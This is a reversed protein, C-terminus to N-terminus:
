YNNKFLRVKMYLDWREDDNFHLQLLTNPSTDSVAGVEDAHWKKQLDASWVDSESVIADLIRRLAVHPPIKVFGSFNLLKKLAKRPRRMFTHTRCTFYVSSVRFYTFSSSPHLVPHHSLTPPLTLSPPKIYIHRADLSPNLVTAQTWWVSYWSIIIYIYLTLSDVIERWPRQCPNWCYEYLNYQIDSFDQFYLLLSKNHIM